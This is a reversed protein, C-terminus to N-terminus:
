HSFVPACIFLSTGLVTYYLCLSDPGLPQSHLASLSHSQPLQLLSRVVLPYLDANGAVTFWSDRELFYNLISSFACTQREISVQVLPTLPTKLNKVIM